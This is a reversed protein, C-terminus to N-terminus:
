SVFGFFQKFQRFGFLKYFTDFIDEEEEEIELQVIFVFHEMCQSARACVVLFTHRHLTDKSTSELRKKTAACPVLKVENAVVVLVFEGNWTGDSPEVGVFLRIINNIILDDFHTTLVRM